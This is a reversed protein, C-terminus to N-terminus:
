IQILHFHVQQEKVSVNVYQMSNSLMTNFKSIVVIIFSMLYHLFVIYCFWNDLKNDM